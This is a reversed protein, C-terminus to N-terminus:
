HGEGGTGGFNIVQFMRGFPSVVTGPPWPNMVPVYEFAGARLLEDSLKQTAREALIEFKKPAAEDIGEIIADAVLQAGIAPMFWFCMALYCLCDLDDPQVGVAEVARDVIVDFAPHDVGPRRRMDGVAERVDEEVVRGRRCWAVANAYDRLRAYAVALTSCRGADLGKLGELKLLHAVVEEYPGRFRKIFAAEGLLVTSEPNVRLAENIVRLAEADDGCGDFLRDALMSAARVDGPNVALARRYYETGAPSYTGGTAEMHASDECCALVCLALASAGPVADLSLVSLAKERAEGMRRLSLMVDAYMAVLWADGPRLAIQGEIKAALREHAAVYDGHTEPMWIRNELESMEAALEDVTIESM